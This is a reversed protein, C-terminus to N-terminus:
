WRRRPLRRCWPMIPFNGERHGQCMLKWLSDFGAGAVVAGAVLYTCNLARDGPVATPGKSRQDATRGRARAWLATRQLLTPCSVIDSQAAAEPRTTSGRAHNTILLLSRCSGQCRGFIVFCGLVWPAQPRGDRRGVMLPTVPGSPFQGSFPPSGPQVRSTCSRWRHRPDPLVMVARRGGQGVVRVDAPNERRAEAEDPRPRPEPEKFNRLAIGERHRDGTERYIAAADQCATITEDFRRAQHLAVRLNDLASASPHNRAPRTLHRRAIGSSKDTRGPVNMMTPRSPNEPHPPM